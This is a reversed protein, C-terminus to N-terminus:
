RYAAMLREEFKKRFYERRDIEHFKLVEDSRIVNSNRLWEPDGRAKMYELQWWRVTREMWNGFRGRWILEWFSQWSKALLCGRVQRLPVGEAQYCQPLVRRVWQNVAWFKTATNDRDYIPFLIAIWNFLYADKKFWINKEQYLKQLNLHENSIFFSLCMKGAVKKHRWQGTLAILLTVLLRVLWLRGHQAIIVVDIDSEERPTEIPFMNCVAVMKLFPVGSLLRTLKIAKKWRPLAIRHRNLRQEVLEKRGRLFYFGEAQDVKRKLSERHRFALLIESLSFSHEVLREEHDQLFKSLEVLTLPYDFLDYFVLTQVLGRELLEDRSNLLRSM